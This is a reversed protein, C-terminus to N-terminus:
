RGGTGFVFISDVSVITLYYAKSNDKKAGQYRQRLFRPMWHTAVYSHDSNKSVCRSPPYVRLHHDMHADYWYENIWPRHGAWHTALALIQRLPFVVSLIVFELAKPSEYSNMSSHNNLGFRVETLYASLPILYIPINNNITHWLVGTIIFISGHVLSLAAVFGKPVPVPEYLIASPDKDMQSSPPAELSIMLASLSAVATSM